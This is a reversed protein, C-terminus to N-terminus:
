IIVIKFYKQFFYLKSISPLKNPQVIIDSCFELSIVIGDENSRLINGVFIENVLPQFIIYRFTVPTCTFSENPLLFSDGIKIFDYFSM